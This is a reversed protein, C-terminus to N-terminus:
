ATMLWHHMRALTRRAPEGGENLHGHLTGPERLLCVDGGAAALDAAFAEGSRRLRDTDGTVVLTPPLGRVDHGGAFAYPDHLHDGAYRTNMDAVQPDDFRRGEPLLRLAAALAPDAPPVQAHVVPYALLLAVPVATGRDRLRLAAGAALCGGASAGGLGVRAPDCGWAPAQARAHDFAAVTQLGAVPFGARARGANSRGPVDVVGPAATLTYDVSVVAVGLGCLHRAVADAEPMDLDGHVFGGGHLWVLVPGAPDPPRYTRLGFTHGAATLEHDTVTTM